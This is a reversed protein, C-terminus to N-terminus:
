LERYLWLFAEALMQRQWCIVLYLTSGLAAVLFSWSAANMYGITYTLNLTAAVPEGWRHWAKWGTESSHESSVRFARDRQM